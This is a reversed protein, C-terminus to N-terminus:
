YVIISFNREDVLAVILANEEIFRECDFRVGSFIVRGVRLVNYTTTKM